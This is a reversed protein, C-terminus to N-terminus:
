QWCAQSHLAAKTGPLLPHSSTSVPLSLPSSLSLSLPLSLSLSPAWDCISTSLAPCQLCTRSLSVTVESRQLLQACSSAWLHARPQLPPLVWCSKICEGRLVGIAKVVLGKFCILLFMKTRHCCVWGLTIFYRFLGRFHTPNWDIAECSKMHATVSLMNGTYIRIVEWVDITYEGDLNFM